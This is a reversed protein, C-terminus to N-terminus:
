YLLPFDAIGSTNTLDTRGLHIRQLQTTVFQGTYFHDVFFYGAFVYEDLRAGSDPLAPIHGVFAGCEGLRDHELLPTVILIAIAPKVSWGGVGAAVSRPSSYNIEYSSYTIMSKM